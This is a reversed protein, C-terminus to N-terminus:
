ESNFQNIFPKVDLKNICRIFCLVFFSVTTNKETLLIRQIFFAAKALMKVNIRKEKELFPVVRNVQSLRKLILIVQM